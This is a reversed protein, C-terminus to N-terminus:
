QEGCESLAGGEAEKLAKRVAIQLLQALTDEGSVEAVSEPPSPFGYTINCLYYHFWFYCPEPASSETPGCEPLGTSRHGVM